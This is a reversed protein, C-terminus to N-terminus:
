RLQYMSALTWRELEFGLKLRNKTTRTTAAGMTKRFGKRQLRSKGRFIYASSFLRCKSEVVKDQLDHLLPFEPTRRQFSVDVRELERAKCCPNKQLSIFVSEPIPHSESAKRAYYLTYSPGKQMTKMLFKYQLSPQRVDIM